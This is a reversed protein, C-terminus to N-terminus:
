GEGVTWSSLLNPLDPLSSVTGTVFSYADDDRVNDGGAIVRVTRLGMEYAPRLDNALGDGVMVAEERSAGTDKLLRQFFRPDPKSIGIEGSIAAASFHGRLGLEALLTHIHAGQNAALALKYQNALLRLTEKVGPLMPNLDKQRPKLWARFESLVAGFTEEDPAFRRLVAKYVGAVGSGILRERETLVAELTVPMGREALANAVYRYLQDLLPADDLLVGGVDMFLWSIPHKKGPPQHTM